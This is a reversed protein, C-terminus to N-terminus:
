EQRPAMQDQRRTQPVSGWSGPYAPQTLPREMRGAREAAGPWAGAIVETCVPGKTGQAGGGVGEVAQELDLIQGRGRGWLM